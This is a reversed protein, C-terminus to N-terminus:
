GGGNTPLVDHVVARECRSPRDHPFLETDETVALIGIFRAHIHDVPMPLEPSAIVLTKQGNFLFPVWFVIERAPLTHPRIGDIVWGRTVSTRMLLWKNGNDSLLTDKIFVYM